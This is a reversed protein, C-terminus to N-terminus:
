SDHHRAEILEVIDLWQDLTEVGGEVPDFPLDDINIVIRGVARGGLNAFQGLGISVDSTDLTDTPAPERSRHDFAHERAAGRIESDHVGIQLMVFLQQRAHECGEFRILEVDNDATAVHCPACDAVPVFAARCHAADSRLERSQNDRCLDRVRHAPKKHQM